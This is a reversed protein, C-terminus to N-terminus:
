YSRIDGRYEYVYRGTASDIRIKPNEDPHILFTRAYDIESLDVREDYPDIELVTAGDEQIYYIM